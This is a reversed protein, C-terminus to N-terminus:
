AIYRERIPQEINNLTYVPLLIDGYPIELDISDIIKSINELAEPCYSFLEKMEPEPRISYNGDILTNRDPDDLAKHTAMCSLLDQAETKNTTPYHIDLTAVIPTHTKKGLHILQQNINSQNGRDPHEQIELYYDEGFIKKYAEIKEIMYSEEQGTTIHQSIEGMHDGSLAILDSSYTKLTEMDVRANGFHMGDMYAKTVISILNKYGAFNKSLLTLRYIHDDKERYDIGDRAIM